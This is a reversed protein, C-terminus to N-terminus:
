QYDKKLTKCKARVEIPTNPLESLECNFTIVNKNAGSIESWYMVIMVFFLVWSIILAGTVIFLKNQLNYMYM